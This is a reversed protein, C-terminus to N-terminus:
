GILLNSATLYSLLNKLEKQDSLKFLINALTINKRVKTLLPKELYIYKSNNFLQEKRIIEIKKKLVGTRAM